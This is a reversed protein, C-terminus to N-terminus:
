VPEVRLTMGPFAEVALDCAETMNCVWMEAILKCNSWVRFLKM